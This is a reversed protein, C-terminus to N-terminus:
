NHTNDVQCHCPIRQYLCTVDVLLVSSRCDVVMCKEFYPNTTSLKALTNVFSFGWVIILTSWVNSLHEMFIACCVLCVVQQASLCHAEEWLGSVPPLFLKNVNARSDHKQERSLFIVRM